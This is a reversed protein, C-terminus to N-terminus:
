ISFLMSLVTPSSCSADLGSALLGVQTALDKECRRNSTFAELAKRDLRERLLPLVLHTGTAAGPDDCAVNIPQAELHCLVAQGNEQRTQIDRLQVQLRQYIEHDDSDSCLQCLVVQAPM